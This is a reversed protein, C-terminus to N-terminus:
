CAADDYPDRERSAWFIGALFALQLSLIMWVWWM